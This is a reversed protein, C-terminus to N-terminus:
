TEELMTLSAAISPPSTDFSTGGETALLSADLSPCHRPPCALGAEILEPLARAADLGVRGARMHDVSTQGAALADRVTLWGVLYGVDRAVGGGRYAREAIGVADAAGFGHERRLWRATDGFPAGHHMRDAVLVRAAIVRMRYADLVGAREELCLCIGEQAGFSGATGIEFLRLPQSRANAAAVAHGLVEHVAFRLSERRGFRRDALFVTRDGTAAGASLRPEVKVEITLGAAHAVRLMLGALSPRGPLGVAPVVREEERHPMSDLIARALRAVPAKGDPLEVETRGTGFRRASLPRIRRPDGLADIMALELDLEELRALYLAAAPQGEVRARARELMRWVHPEVRRGRRTWVPVPVHGRSLQDVLRAREEAANDATLAPLLRATDAVQKMLADVERLVRPVAPQPPLSM